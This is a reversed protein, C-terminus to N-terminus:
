RCTAGKMFGLFNVMLSLLTVIGVKPFVVDAPNFHDNVDFGYGAGQNRIYNLLEHGYVVFAGQLFVNTLVLQLIVNILNLFECAFFSITYWNFRHRRPM